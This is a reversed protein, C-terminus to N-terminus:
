KRQEPDAFATLAKSRIVRSAQAERETPSARDDNPAAGLLHWPALQRSAVSRRKAESLSGWAGDSVFTRMETNFAGLLAVSIRRTIM